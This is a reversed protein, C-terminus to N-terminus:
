GFIVQETDYIFRVKNEYPGQNEAYGDDMEQGRKNERTRRVRM